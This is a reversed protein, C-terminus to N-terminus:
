SGKFNFIKFKERFTFKLEKYVKQVMFTIQNNIKIILNIFASNFYRSGCLTLLKLIFQLCDTCKCIYDDNHCNIKFSM